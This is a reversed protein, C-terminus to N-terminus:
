VTARSARAKAILSAAGRTWNRPARTGTTVIQWRGGATELFTVAEM